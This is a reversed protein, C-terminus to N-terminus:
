LSGQELSWSQSGLAQSCTFCPPSGRPSSLLAPAPLTLLLPLSVQWSSVREEQSAGQMSMSSPALSTTCVLPPQQQSFRM